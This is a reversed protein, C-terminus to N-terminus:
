KRIRADLKWKETKLGNHRDLSDEIQKVVAKNQLLEHCVYGVVETKQTPNLALLSVKQLWLSMKNAENESMRQDWEHAKAPAERREKETGHLGYITRM